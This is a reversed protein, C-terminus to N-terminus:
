GQPEGTAHVIPPNFRVHLEDDTPDLWNNPSFAVECIYGRQAAQVGIFGLAGLVGGAAGVAAFAAAVLEPNVPIAKAQPLLASLGQWAKAVPVTQAAGYIRRLVDLCAPGSVTVQVGEKAGFAEVCSPVLGPQAITMKRM